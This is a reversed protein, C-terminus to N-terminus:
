DNSKRRLSKKFSQMRKILIEAEDYLPEIENESLYKMEISFLLQSVSETTSKISIDIFHSFDKVTVSGSGEAINSSVSLSARKLQSILGFQETKPLKDCLIYVHKAYLISSQWIELQQFRFTKKM